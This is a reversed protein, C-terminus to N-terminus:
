IGAGTCQTYTEVGGETLFASQGKSWFVVQESNTASPDGDSYRIGSASLTQRLNFARGDSVILFVKGGPTPPMGQTTPPTSSGEYYTATMTKNGACAYSVTSIITADEKTAPTGGLTLAVYAGAIFMGIVVLTGIIIFTTKRM